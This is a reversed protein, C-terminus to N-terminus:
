NMVRYPRYILLVSFVRITTLFLSNRIDPGDKEKKKGGGGGVWKKKDLGYRPIWFLITYFPSSSGSNKRLIARPPRFRGILMALKVLADNKLTKNRTEKVDKYFVKYNTAHTTVIIRQQKVYMPRYMNIYIAIKGKKRGMISKKDGMIVYFSFHSIRQGM